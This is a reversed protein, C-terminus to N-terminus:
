HIVQILEYSRRCGVKGSGGLRGPQFVGLRTIEALFARKGRQELAEALQRRFLALRGARCDIDGLLAYLRRQRCPALRQLIGLKFGLQRGFRQIHRQGPAAAQAAAQMRHGDAQIADFLQEAGDAEVDGVTGLDLGVPM